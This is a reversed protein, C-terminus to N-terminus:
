AGPAEPAVRVSAPGSPTLPTLYFIGDHKLFFQTEVPGECGRLTFEGQQGLAIRRQPSLANELTIRGM